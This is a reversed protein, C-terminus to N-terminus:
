VAEPLTSAIWGRKADLEVQLPRLPHQDQTALERLHYNAVRDGVLVMLRLLREATPGMRQKGGEWRSVTERKIGIERAFDASSYGLWTRLYRIEKPTIQQPKSAVALALAKHLDEIRKLGIYEEGCEPCHDVRVNPLIVAEDLGVDYRRREHRTTTKASCRVCKM